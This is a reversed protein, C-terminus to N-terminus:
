VMHCSSSGCLGVRLVAVYASRLDDIFHLHQAVRTFITNVALTSSLVDLCQAQIADSTETVQILRHSLNCDLRTHCRHTTFTSGSPVRRM